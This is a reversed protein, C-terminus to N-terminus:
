IQHSTGSLECYELFTQANRDKDSLIVKDPEQIPWQIKLEPDNWLIGGCAEPVYRGTCIYAFVTNDELAQFGHAFGTPIFLIKHESATLMIEFCKGFTESGNRLDLAVDYISGSIVQVLKAQSEQRQYHLGRIVGKQSYIISGENFNDFIGNAAFINREYYKEYMGRSDPALHPDIVKLGKIGTQVFQFSM